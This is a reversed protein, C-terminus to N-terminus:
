CPGLFFFGIRAHFRAIAPFRCMEPTCAGKWVRNKDNVAVPPAPTEVRVRPLGVDAAESRWWPIDRGCASPTPTVVVIRRGWSIRQLRNGAPSNAYVWPPLLQINDPPKPHPFAARAVLAAEHWSVFRLSGALQWDCAM